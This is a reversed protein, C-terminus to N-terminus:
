GVQRAGKTGDGRPRSQWAETMELEPSCADNRSILPYDTAFLMKEPAAAAAAAFVEDRAAPALGSDYYVRRLM